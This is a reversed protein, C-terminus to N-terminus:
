LWVGVVRGRVERHENRVRQTRMGGSTKPLRTGIKSTIAATGARITLAAVVCMRAVGDATDAGADFEYWRGTLRYPFQGIATVQVRLVRRPRFRLIGCVLM